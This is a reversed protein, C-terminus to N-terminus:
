KTETVGLPLLQTTDRTAKQRILVAMDIDRARASKTRNASAMGRRIWGSCSFTVVDDALESSWVRGKESEGLNRKPCFPSVTWVFSTM